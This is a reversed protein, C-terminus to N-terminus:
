RALLFSETEIMHLRLATPDAIEAFNPVAFVRYAVDRAFELLANFPRQYAALNIANWEILVAADTAALCERAGQLVDLDAGEVDCKIISVEPKGLSRWAADLTTVPVTIISSASARQTNRFGDFLSEAQSSMAFDATGEFTGVAKEILQWRTGFPSGAITRRLSPLVNVSPEFSVVRCDSCSKLVPIAMLGINAGVDFMTTGPRVLSQLVRVNDHEFIGQECAAYFSWSRPPFHVKVGFYPFAGAFGLCSGYLVRKVRQRLTL